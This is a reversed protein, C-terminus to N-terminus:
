PRDLVQAWRGRLGNGPQMAIGEEHIARHASNDPVDRRLKRAELLLASIALLAALTYLSVLLTPSIVTNQPTSSINAATDVLISALKVAILSLLTV